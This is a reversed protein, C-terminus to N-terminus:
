TASGLSAQASFSATRNFHKAEEKTTIVLLVWSDLVSKELQLSFLPDSKTCCAVFLLQTKRFPCRATAPTCLDFDQLVDDYGVGSRQGKVLDFIEFKNM